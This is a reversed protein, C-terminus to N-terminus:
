TLILNFDVVKTLRSHMKEKTINRKLYNEPM